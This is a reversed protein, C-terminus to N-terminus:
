VTLEASQPQIRGNQVSEIIKDLVRQREAEPRNLMTLATESVSKVKSTTMSQLLTDLNDTALQQTIAQISRVQNNTTHIAHRIYACLFIFAVTNWYQVLGNSKLDIVSLALRRIDEDEFPSHIRITDFNM